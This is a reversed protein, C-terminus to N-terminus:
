SNVHEYQHIYPPHNLAQSLFLNNKSQPLLEHISCSLRSFDPREDRDLQWCYLMIQYLADGIAETQNPRTGICIRKPFDESKIDHYPTGGLTAIEWLLVGFSWIDCPRICRNQFQEVASWRMFDLTETLPNSAFLGFGTIKPKELENILVNCAALQGHIVQYSQLHFMGEAINMACLLLSYANVSPKENPQRYQLLLSKLPIGGYEAVFLMTNQDEMFGILRVVNEHTDMRVLDDLDKFLKEPDEFSGSIDGDAGSQFYSAPVSYLSVPTANTRLSSLYVPGYKGKSILPVTDEDQSPIDMFNRPVYWVQQLKKLCKGKTDEDHTFGMHTYAEAHEENISYAQSTSTSERSTLQHNEIRSQQTTRRRRKKPFINLKLIVYVATCLALVCGSVGIAIWLAKVVASDSEIIEVRELSSDSDIFANAHQDHSSISYATKVFGDMSSVVGISPHWHGPPLPGNYYRGYTGGSGVVFISPLDEPSFEAAVYYPYGSNVSENWTVPHDVKIFYSQPNDLLVIQYASIPGKTNHAQQLRITMTRRNQRLIKPASPVDPVGIKTWLVASVPSSAGESNVARVSINYQSGPLLGILFQQQQLSDSVEWTNGQKWVQAYTFLPQATIRYGVLHGNPALPRVWSIQLSDEARQLLMIQQPPSPVKFNTDYISYATESGCFEAANNTCNDCNGERNRGYSSGCMCELGNSSTKIVGAYRFSYAQCALVCRQPSEVTDDANSARPTFWLDLLFDSASTGNEVRAKENSSSGTTDKSYCGLHVLNSDAVGAPLLSASFFTLLLVFIASM